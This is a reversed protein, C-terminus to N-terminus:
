LSALIKNITEEKTVKSTQSFSNNSQKLNKLESGKYDKFAYKIASYFNSDEIRTILKKNMLKHLFYILSPKSTGPGRKINWNIGQSSKGLFLKIFEEMQCEIIGEKKLEKYLRELQAESGEWEILNKGRENSSNKKPLYEMRYDKICNYIPKFIQKLDPYISLPSFNELKQLKSEIQDLYRKTRQKSHSYQLMGEDILRVSKNIESKFYLHFVEKKFDFEIEEGYCYIISKNEQDIKVDPDEFQIKTENFNVSIQIYQNPNRSYEKLKKEVEVHWFAEVSEENYFREFYTIPNEKSSNM